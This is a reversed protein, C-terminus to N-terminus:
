EDDGFSDPLGLPPPVRGARGFMQVIYKEEVAEMSEHRTRDDAALTTEDAPYFVLAMGRQPQVVIGLRDFRTGGGTPCDNLYTIATVVRQGGLDAWESGLTPSADNHTAFVAGPQYRTLVPAEFQEWPHSTIRCVRSVLKSILDYDSEMNLALADSTRSNANSQSRIFQTVGFALSTAVVTAILIPPLAAALVDQASISAAAVDGSAGSGGGSGNEFLRIVPPLGAGICLFPLPWLKGVDLSVDPPNSRTLEDSSATDARNIFQQCEEESLVDFVTYILPDQSLIRYQYSSLHDLNTSIQQSEATSDLRVNTSTSRHQSSSAFSIPTFAVVFCLQQHHILFSFLLPAAARFFCSAQM